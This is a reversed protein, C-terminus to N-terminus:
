LANFQLTFILMYSSYPRNCELKKLDKNWLLYHFVEIWFM